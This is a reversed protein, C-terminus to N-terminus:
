ISYYHKLLSGGVFNQDFGANILTQCIKPNSKFPGVSLEEPPISLVVPKGSQDAFTLDIRAKITSVESCPLGYAGKDGFAKIKPSILAYLAETTNKPFQVNATGTDFYVQRVQKLAGNTKGNVAFQSSELQWFGRAGKAIPIYAVTKGKLKVNDVGGITMEAGGIAKPTLYFGMVAPLGHQVLNQFFTGNSIYGMGFVGDFPDDWFGSTQNTILYFDTAVPSLGAISIMDQVASYIFSESTKQNLMLASPDVGVGTAFEAVYSENYDYFTSSLKRDFKRQKSCTECSLDPIEADLSGTDFVVTFNQPPTGAQIKGYWQLDTGDYYNKLPVNKKPLTGSTKRVLGNDRLRRSLNIRAPGPSAFAGPAAGAVIAVLAWSHLLM